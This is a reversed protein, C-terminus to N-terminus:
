PNQLSANARALSFVTPDFGQAQRVYDSHRAHDPDSLVLLFEEYGSVGGIDEPPCAREGALCVAYELEVPIEEISEVVIDHVWTDGFDYEYHFHAGVGLLDGVSVTTEDVTEEGEDDEGDDIGIRVDGVRFEHLHYDEWGMALQIAGHLDEFTNSADLMVRRWVLPATGALEVRLTVAAFSRRSHRPTV